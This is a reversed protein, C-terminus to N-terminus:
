HVQLGKDYMAAYGLYQRVTNHPYTMEVGSVQGKPGFRATLWPNIGAWYTPIDLKGYRAVIQDRLAPDFHVAYKETLAKIADYDGEAKIRMLEALLMGVGQHMKEYDKVEIYTKGDREFQEISGPAKDLIYRVIMQRDRAHDEELTNGKPVRRLQTLAVLTSRDYM